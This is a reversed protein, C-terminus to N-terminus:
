HAASEVSVKEVGKTANEGLGLVIRKGRIKPRGPFLLRVEGDTTAEATFEVEKRGAARYIVRVQKYVVAAFPEKGWGDFRVRVGKASSEVVAKFPGPHDDFM